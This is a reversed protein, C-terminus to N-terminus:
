GALMLWCMAVTGFSMLTSAVLDCGARDRLTGRERLHLVLEILFLIGGVVLAATLLAGSVTAWTGTQAQTAVHDIAHAHDSASSAQATGPAPLAPSMVAVAWSMALMMVAHAAQARASEHHGPRRGSATPGSATPGGAALGRVPGRSLADVAYWGSAAAFFVAAVGFFALQPLTPLRAWWPWAMAIMDLSMGLHLLYGVAVFVHRATTLRWLSHASLVAFTGTVAWQVVPDSTM